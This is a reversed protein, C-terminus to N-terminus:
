IGEESMVYEVTVDDTDMWDEVSYNGECFDLSPWLYLARKKEDEVYRYEDCSPNDLVYGGCGLHAGWYEGTEKSKEVLDAVEEPQLYYTCLAHADNYEFVYVGESKSYLDKGSCLYDYMQKGNEFKM